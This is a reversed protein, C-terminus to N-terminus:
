QIKLYYHDQSDRNDFIYDVLQCSKKKCFSNKDRTNQFKKKNREYYEKYFKELLKKINKYSMTEKRETKVLLINGARTGKRELIFEIIDKELEKRKDKLIKTQSDIKKIDSCLTKYNEIKKLIDNM